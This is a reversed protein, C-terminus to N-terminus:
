GEAVYRKVTRRDLATRRAVEEYSGYRGYLARCYRSLLTRASEDGEGVASLLRADADAGGGKAVRDGAYVGTLIIRRACQELERVNGPWAYSAGLREAIAQRVLLSVETSPEGLVKEVIVPVLADLERPEEALRQRLSPLAIVDSCLRYFFDDRFRGDARMEDVPRNTAAIVRGRFRKVEHGGVPSFAREELVRLLKIQTPISAEGIEDLFISGFPSTRELVGKHSEVAGTFAGKKHGFLESEILAEPFQSLNLGVFTESFSEVFTGTKDDFPIFGSRGIAAAAVGKGTGTEGLLFTSFDEMKRWLCRAYLRADRTFVNSWLRERLARMSAAEGPLAGAIFYFARRLQFFMAFHVAAEAETFGHETVRALADRAFPVPLPAAPHGVERAIHADFADAFTHFVDFLVAYQVLAHDEGQHRRLLSSRPGAADLRRRVAALLQLTVEDRTDRKAAGAIQRDLDGRSAGFPNAFAAESVLTFFGRDKPSLM